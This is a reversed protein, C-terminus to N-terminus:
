VPREYSLVLTTIGTGNSCYGRIDRSVSEALYGFLTFADSDSVCKIKLQVMNDKSKFTVDKMLQEKLIGLQLLSEKVYSIFEKTSLKPESLKLKLENTDWFNETLFKSYIKFTSGMDRSQKSFHLYQSVPVNENVLRDYEYDYFWTLDDSYNKGRWEM